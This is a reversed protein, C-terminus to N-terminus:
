GPQLASLGILEAATREYSESAAREWGSRAMDDRLRQDQLVTVLVRALDCSDGARFYRAAQGLQGVLGPLDSAVIPVGAALAKAAIGSQTVTRYPLVLVTAAGLLASLDHDPVYGTMVYDVSDRLSLLQRTLSEKYRRDGDAFLRFPGSRPRVDGAIVFQTTGFDRVVYHAAGVLLDVGKSSTLWGVVLVSPDRLRYASRVREDDIPDRVAVRIGHPVYDVHSALRQALLTKRETESFAIIRTASLRVACYIARCVPGLIALERSAEHCGILVPVGRRKMAYAAALTSGLSARAAAIAFQMFVLDPDFQVLTRLTSGMRIAALSAGPVDQAGHMDFRDSSVPSLWLM